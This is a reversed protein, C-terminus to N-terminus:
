GRHPQFAKAFGPSDQETPLLSGVNGAAFSTPNVMVIGAARRAQEIAAARQQAHIQSADPLPIGLTSCAAKVAAGVREPDITGDEALLDAMNTGAAWLAEPRVGVAGTLQDVEARRLAELQVALGDREAEVERLQRRYRAAERGPKDDADTEAVPEAVESADPHQSAPTTTDLPEVAVDETTIPETM